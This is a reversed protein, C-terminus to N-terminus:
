PTPVEFEALTWCNGVCTVQYFKGTELSDGGAVSKRLTTVTLGNTSTVTLTCDATATIEVAFNPVEDDELNVNLTLAAQATTLTMSANNFVNISAADELAGGNVIIGAIRDLGENIIDAVPKETWHEPVWVGDSIAGYLNIYIKNDHEVVSYKRYTNGPQWPSAMLTVIGTEDLTTMLQVNPVKVWKTGDWKAFEYPRIPVAGLKDDEVAMYIEDTLPEGVEHLRLEGTTKVGVYKM